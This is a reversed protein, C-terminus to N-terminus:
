TRKTTAAVSHGYDYMYYPTSVADVGTLVISAPCRHRLSKYAQGVVDRGTRGARIVLIMFDGMSSLVNLDALPLIPPTDILIYDFREKLNHLAKSLLRIRSLELTGGSISGTPLIWLPVDEMKQICADLPQEGLLYDVLGHGPVADVYAHVMPRKLDCDIILTRRDLEQALVYGLNVATSTKGEGVLASTVLVVTSKQDATMLSLRTAAVRFQESVMSRPSWKTVLNWSAHQEKLAVQREDSEPSVSGTLLKKERNATFAAYGVATNGFVSSFAPISALVPLGLMTEAEDSRRFAPSLMELGVATGVGLGCGLILGALLILPRNPSEPTAPLDAPDLIRFQEGKQRKELNEAVRANLKKELLSQYNKQMNDYDRILIMLDQERAPTREVRGELINVQELLRRLREKLVEVENKAEDRHQMLEKIAPDVLKKSGPTVEDKDVGYKTALQNKVSEIEQRTLVIDPYTERYEATLTALKSELEALRAILPDGGRRQNGTNSQPAIQGPAESMGESVQKELLAYRNKAADLNGRMTNVEMQLRDLSRLNAEMQQPLEGMYKSKFDSIEREQAELKTKALHLEQELFDSAGEVFQERIKLNEEIFLSAFRATVDRATVADQHAFSITFGDTTDPGRAHGTRIMNIKTTKQMASLISEKEGASMDPGFLKFEEAVKTLLSRSMVLQKIASLRGEVSGDVVSKVYSEPIKQSEVLVTTTSRFSKPLVLCLVISTGISVAITAVILWKRRRVIGVYDEMTLAPSAM